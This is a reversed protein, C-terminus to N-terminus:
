RRATFDQLPLYEKERPSELTPQVLIFFVGKGQRYGNFEKKFSRVFSDYRREGIATSKNDPVGLHAGCHISSHFGNLIDTLYEVSVSGTLQNEPTAKSFLYEVFFFSDNSNETYGVSYLKSRIIGPLEGKILCKGNLCKSLEGRISTQFQDQSSLNNTKVIM